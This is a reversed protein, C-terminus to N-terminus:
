GAAPVSEALRGGIRIPEVRKAFGTSDDTEVFVGCLTGEGLAPSYREGPLQTSFRAISNEKKMGIVSDYDGCMGADTQYATGNELIMLDATPVHTHSGVVLSARGDCYHGMAMKESTAECHMDVILADVALGLPMSDLAADAHNFANELQQRMFVNGQLQMVGVRRGDQLVFVHAGKGPAGAAEPYNLPRLLRPEREIFTLAERQDWAHDGLTLCDAGAQFFDNAIAETLGFGGAANEGNVVVFDLELQRRLGPLHDVVAARGPKGVVDGFYALKM